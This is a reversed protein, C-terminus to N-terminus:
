LTGRPVVWETPQGTVDAILDFDADYHLVVLGEARAVAAVLLDAVSVGRHQGRAVLATQVDRAIQEAAPPVLVPLLDYLLGARVAHHDSLSQSSFGVELETIVCVGVLGRAARPALVAMVRADDLRVASTDILWHAASTM